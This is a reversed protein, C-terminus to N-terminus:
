MNISPTKEQSCSRNMGVHCCSKGINPYTYTFKLTQPKISKKICIKCDDDNNQEM